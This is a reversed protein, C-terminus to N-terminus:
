QIDIEQLNLEQVEEVDQEVGVLALVEPAVTATKVTSYETAYDSLKQKLTVVDDTPMENLNVTFVEGGITFSVNILKNQISNIIYKM